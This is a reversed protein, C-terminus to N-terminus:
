YLNVINDEPSKPNQPPPKPLESPVGAFNRLYLEKMQDSVEEPQRLLFKKTLTIPFDISPPAKLFGLVHFPPDISLLSAPFFRPVVGPQTPNAEVTTLLSRKLTITEEDESVVTGIIFQGIDKYVGLIQDTM